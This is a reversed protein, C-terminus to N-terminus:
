LLLGLDQLRSVNELREAVRLTASRARSNLEVEEESAKRPKGLPRFPKPPGAYNGFVDKEELRKTLCGDRMIRKVARDEMSHYSLVVLRGSPKILAPAADSLVKALVDEERNVAIRLAQFVRALTATRGARRSRKNFAPTVAAVAAELHSTTALPRHEVISNAIAKARPEDGYKKLIRKLDSVDMENCLDAATLSNSLPDMRMDLPGEQQFAFGRSATDIQYSSVGLDLLVGDVGYARLEDASETCEIQNALLERTLDGFNSHVPVFRPGFGELRKTATKLADPDVDCGFVVIEDHNKLLAETHGGGGLTGDVIWRPSSGSPLLADLCEQWM